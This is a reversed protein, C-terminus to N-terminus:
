AYLREAFTVSSSWINGSELWMTGGGSAVAVGLGGGMDAYFAKKLDGRDIAVIVPSATGRNAVDYTVDDTPTRMNWMACKRLLAIDADSLQSWNLTVIQQIAARGQIGYQGIQMQPAADYWSALADTYPSGTNFPIALGAWAVDIYRGASGSGDKFQLVLSYHRTNTNTALTSSGTFLTWTTHTNGLEASASDTLTIAGTDGTGSYTSDYGYVIARMLGSSSTWNGSTKAIVYPRLRISPLATTNHPGAGIGYPSLASAFQWTSGFSGTNDDILVSVFRGSTNPTYANARYSIKSSIASGPTWYKGTEVPYVFSPDDIWIARTITPLSVSM